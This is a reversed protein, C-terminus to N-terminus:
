LEIKPTDEFFPNLEDNVHGCDKCAYTPFPVITDQPSGTLLAPVKKLMSVETFLKCGCKECTIPDMKSLEIKPKIIESM